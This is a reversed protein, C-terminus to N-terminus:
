PKEKRRVPPKERIDVAMYGVIGQAMLRDKLAFLDPVGATALFDEYSERAHDLLHGPVPETEPIGCRTADRRAMALIKNNLFHDALTM